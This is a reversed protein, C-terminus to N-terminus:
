DEDEDKWKFYLVTTIILVALSIGAVVAFKGWPLAKDTVTLRAGHLAREARTANGKASVAMVFLRYNGPDPVRVMVSKSRRGETWSEGGSRGHYYEINSEYQHVMMEDERVLAAELTMWANSLGTRATIRVAAGDGALPFAASYAGETLEEASFNENLVDAGKHACFLAALGNILLALAAVLMIQVYRRRAIAADEGAVPKLTQGLDPKRTARRVMELGLRRGAGYEIENAIRQAEYIRGTGAEEAFEAYALRDGVSAVWPLAGDVYYLEYTGRGEAIWTKDDHTTLKGGRGIDFPDTRPMVHTTTTLSYHGQYEGLWCCPRRPHYLLYERTMEAIDGDEIYALRAIVEYRASRYRFSDGLQLPFFPQDASKRGVVKREAASVDLHSGCYECVVLEAREDKISLGAGCSACRINKPQYDPRPRGQNLGFREKDM